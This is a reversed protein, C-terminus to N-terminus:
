LIVVMAYSSKHKSGTIGALVPGTHAGIGHKLPQQVRDERRINLANLRARMALAAKDGHEQEDSPAGSVAEITDGM